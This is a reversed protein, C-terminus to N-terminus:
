CILGTQFPASTLAAYFSLGQVQRELPAIKHNKQSSGLIINQSLFFFRKFKRYHGIVVISEFAQIQAKKRHKRQLFM